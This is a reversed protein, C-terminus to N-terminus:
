RTRAYHRRAKARNGCGQMSCWRRKGNKSSDFFLWGCEPGGCMRVHRLEESTLLGALSLSVRWLPLDPDPKAATFTWSFTFSTRELVARARASSIVENVAHLDNRQPDEGHTVALLLRYAAERFAIARALAASGASKSVSHELREAEADNLVGTLVSWELVNGYSCLYEEPDDRGRWDLTNVFDLCPLGGYFELNKPSRV